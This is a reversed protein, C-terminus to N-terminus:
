NLRGDHAYLAVRLKTVTQAMVENATDLAHEADRVAERLSQRRSDAFIAYTPDSTTGKSRETTDERPVPSAGMMWQSDQVEPDYTLRFTELFAKGLLELTDPETTTATTTM